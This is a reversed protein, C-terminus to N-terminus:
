LHPPCKSTMLSQGVLTWSHEWLFPLFNTGGLHPLLTEGKRSCCIIRACDEMKPPTAVGKKQQLAHYRSVRPLMQTETFHHSEWRDSNRRRLHVTTSFRHFVRRVNLAGYTLWRDGTYRTERCCDRSTVVRSMLHDITASSPCTKGSLLSAEHDCM